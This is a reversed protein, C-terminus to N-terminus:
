WSLRPNKDIAKSVYRYAPNNDQITFLKVVPIGRLGNTGM